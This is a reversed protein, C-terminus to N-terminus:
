HVQARQKGRDPHLQHVLCVLDLHLYLSSISSVLHCTLARLLAARFLAARFSRSCLVSTVSPSSNEWASPYSLFCARKQTTGCTAARYFAQNTTTSFLVCPISYALLDLARTTSGWRVLTNQSLDHDEEESEVLLKYSSVLLIAAFVVTIWQFRKVAAVGFAIMVGLCWLCPDRGTHLYTM